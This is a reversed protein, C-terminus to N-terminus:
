SKLQECLQFGNMEPMKIDLLILDPLSAKTLFLLAQEANLVPRVDFGENSLLTYLIRLNQPNDDVVLIKEPSDDIKLTKM